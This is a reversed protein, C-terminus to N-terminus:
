FCLLLVLVTCVEALARRVLIAIRIWIWIRIPSRDFAIDRFRHLVPPLNSSIVLLFDYILQRNTHFDTVM